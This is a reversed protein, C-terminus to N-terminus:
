SGRSGRREKWGPGLVPRSSSSAGSALADEALGGEDCVGAKEYLESAVEGSDVSQGAPRKMAGSVAAPSAADVMEEDELQMAESCESPLEADDEEPPELPESESPSM